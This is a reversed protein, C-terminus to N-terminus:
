ALKVLFLQPITLNARQDKLAYNTALKSSLFMAPSIARRTLSPVMFICAVSPSIFAVKILLDFHGQDDDSSTPTYSRMIEKGNIEASISIHQGIPLGLIDTPHPLAFRYRHDENFHCLCHCCLVFM